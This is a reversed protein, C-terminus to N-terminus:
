GFLFIAAWGLIAGPVIVPLTILEKRIDLLNYKAQLYIALPIGFYNGLVIGWLAGELGLFYYGAPIFSFLALVRVVILLTMLHPKGMALYCQDALSFRQYLLGLSLIQLMLGAGLYRDDYLLEIVMEGAVFLFGVLFSLAVDQLIKFKYYENRLESRQDRYRISLAPFVVTAGIKSFVLQLSNVMLLAISFVGLTETSVFGGLLLRDGNMLLFGFISSIFIWKGFGIIERFANFDFCLRNADGPIAIHSLIARCGSGILAGGVLPWISRDLSAWTIMVILGVVQSLIENRTVLGLLLNRNATAIKTSELGNFIAGIALIGIVYPLVPEAYVNKEAWSHAYHDLLIALVCGILWLLGGRIIQVTWVTNLFQPDDGQRSQIINQRLGMDSILVLGFMVVHAIAMVGFMEPVLLRTMVLNSGLRLGQSLVHGGIVWLGADIVRRRFARNDAKM